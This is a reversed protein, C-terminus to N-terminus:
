VYSLALSCSTTLFSISAFSCSLSYLMVNLCFNFYLFLKYDFPIHTYIFMVSQGVNCMYVYSLTLSCSTTLFSISTFSCSLSDLMASLYFNLYFFLKYYSCIHIYIFMFSQGVKYMYVYSLTLSCSTTLFSISTFLCSLSDLIVSLCLNLYLFLKYYSFIQINIFMLSQGVKCIYVYSLTLSCSTTLFCISAFSCSLIHLIVCIFM